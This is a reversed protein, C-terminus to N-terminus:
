GNCDKQYRQELAPVDFGEQAMRAYLDLPIPFGRRWEQVAERLLKYQYPTM